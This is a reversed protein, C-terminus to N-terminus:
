AIRGQPNSKEAMIKEMIPPLEVVFDAKGVFAQAGLDFAAERYAASDHMSLFVISPPQSWMQMARAVDLGNFEPMAIDLLILEPKLRAALTLAETGNHAEAIVQIDPLTALFQRVAALFTLNDDILMIKIM